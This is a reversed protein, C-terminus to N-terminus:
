SLNPIYWKPIFTHFDDYWDLVNRVQNLMFSVEAEGFPIAWPISSLTNSGIYLAMLRFFVEPVKGEFYGNIRGSAFQSSIGACFVIRNFEEWPDGYDYRNFDIIGIENQANVIMNGAHFDGHQFTQPRGELLRRNDHIYEIIKHSKEFKVPCDLYNEIKRDTKRNFYRAWDERASPASLRHMERLAKGAQYGLAYQVEDKLAPLVEEADIGELWTLLMYVSKGDNCVGFDVPRSMFLSRGDLRKVAEYEEKKRDFESIGSIRLLFSGHNGTQIRYKADNSWGKQIPEVSLWDESGPIDNFNNPM